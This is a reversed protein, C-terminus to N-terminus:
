ASIFVVVGRSLGGARAQEAVEAEPALRRFSGFVVVSIIKLALGLLRDIVLVVVETITCHGEYTADIAHLDRM